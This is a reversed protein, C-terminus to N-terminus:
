VEQLLLECYDLFIKRGKSFFKTLEPDVDVIPLAREKRMWEKTTSCIDESATKYLEVESKDINKGYIEQATELKKEYFLDLEHCANWYIQTAIAVTELSDKVELKELLSVLQADFLRLSDSLHVVQNGLIKNEILQNKSIFHLFVIYGLIIGLLFFSIYRLKSYKSELHGDQRNDKM